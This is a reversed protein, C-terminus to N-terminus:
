VLFSALKWLKYNGTNFAKELDKKMMNGKIQYGEPKINKLMNCAMIFTAKIAEEEMLSMRRYLFTSMHNFVLNYLVEDHTLGLKDSLELAHEMVWYHDISKASSRATRSIGEPNIRYGYIPQEIVAIKKAIRYLVSCVLTDEYWADLPFRIENFLSRKYIKGWAYGPNKVAECPNNDIIRQKDVFYHKDTNNTFIYYGGVLIDADNNIIADMMIEISGDCMVDDSDVFMIYKGVSNNIGTNRAGSLGKNDQIIYKIHEDKINRIINDTNDKSGDNIILLEYNYKTRQKIISEICEKIYKGVNYAPMVISLDIKKDQGKNVIVDNMKPKPRIGNIREYAKDLAICSELRKNDKLSLFMRALVYYIKLIIYGINAFINALVKLKLIRTFTNLMRQKM